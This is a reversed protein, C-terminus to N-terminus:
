TWSVTTNTGTASFPNTAVSSWSWYQNAGPTNGYSAATRTFATSGITMTTFGSNSPTNTNVYFIVQQLIDNWAIQTIVGNEWLQLSTSSMSGYSGSAFGYYNSPGIFKNGPAYMTGVTVTRNQPVSIVNWGAGTWYKPYVRVWASGNWIKGKKWGSHEVWASGNWSKLATM